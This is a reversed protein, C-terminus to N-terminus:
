VKSKIWELIAEDSSFKYGNLEAGDLIKDGNDLSIIYKSEESSKMWSLFISDDAWIEAGKGGPIAVIDYGYLSECSLHMPLSIGMEDTADGRFGVVVFEIGCRAFIDYIRAFNLLNVGDYVVICSKM